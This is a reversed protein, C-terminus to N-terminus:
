RHEHETFVMHTLITSLVGSDTSSEFILHFSGMSHISSDSSLSTFAVWPLVVAHLQTQSVVSECSAGVCEAEAGLEGLRRGAM